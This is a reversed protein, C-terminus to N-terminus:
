FFAVCVAASMPSKFVGHHWIHGQNKEFTSDICDSATMFSSWFPRVTCIIGLALHHVNNNAKVINKHDRRGMKILM